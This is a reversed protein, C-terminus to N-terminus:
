EGTCGESTVSTLEMSCILFVVEASPDHAWTEASNLWPVSELTAAKGDCLVAKSFCGDKSGQLPLVSPCLPCRSPSCMSDEKWCMRSLNMLVSLNRMELASALIPHASSQSDSSTYARQLEAM